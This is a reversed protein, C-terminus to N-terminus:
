KTYSLMNRTCVTTAASPPTNFAPCRCLALSPEVAVFSSMGPDVLTVDVILLLLLLLVLLILSVV